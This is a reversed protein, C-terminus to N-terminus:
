VPFETHILNRYTAWGLMFQRLEKVRPEPAVRGHRRQLTAGADTLYNSLGLHDAYQVVEGHGPNLWQVFVEYDNKFLSRVHEQRNSQVANLM